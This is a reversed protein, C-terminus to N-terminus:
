KVAVPIVPMTSNILQLIGSDNVCEIIVHKKIIKDRYQTVYKTVEVNRVVEARKQEELLTADSVRLKDALISVSQYM